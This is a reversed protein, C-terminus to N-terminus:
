DQGQFSPGQDEGQGQPDLGLDQRPRSPKHRALLVARVVRRMASSAHIGSVHSCQRSM